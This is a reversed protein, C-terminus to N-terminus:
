HSKKTGLLGYRLRDEGEVVKLPLTSGIGFFVFLAWKWRFPNIVVRFVFWYILESYTFFDFAGTPSTRKLFRTMDIWRKMWYEQPTSIESAAQLSTLTSADDLHPSKDIGNTYTTNIACIDMYQPPFCQLYWNPPQYPEEFCNKPMFALSPRKYGTAMIVMDGKIEEERGPGGKPVGKSRHNFLIGNKTMRIIDGRYWQAKGERIQHLVDSNVM